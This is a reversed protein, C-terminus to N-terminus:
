CYVEVCKRCTRINKGSHEPHRCQFFLRNEMYGPRRERPARYPAAQDPCFRRCAKLDQLRPNGSAWATIARRRAADALAVLDVGGPIITLGLDREVQWLQWLQWLQSVLAQCPRHRHWTMCM